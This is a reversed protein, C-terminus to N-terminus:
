VSSIFPAKRVWERKEIEGVCFAAFARRALTNGIRGDGIYGAVVEESESNTLVPVRVLTWELGKNANVVEGIARFDAYATHAVIKVFTANFSTVLNFKDQPDSYAATCLVILRKVSHKSMLDMLSEYFKALPNDRAHFPGTPGLASLVVDVATRPEEDTKTRGGLIASEVEELQALDGRIIFISSDQALDDPIKHPSRVYLIVTSSPYVELVERALAIGCPGTGGFILVRMNAPTLPLKVDHLQFACQSKYGM